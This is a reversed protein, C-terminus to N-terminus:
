RGQQSNHTPDEALQVLAIPRTGIYPLFNLGEDLLALPEADIIDSLGNRRIKCLIVRFLCVGEIRAMLSYKRAAPM